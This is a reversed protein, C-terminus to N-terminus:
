IEAVNGQPQAAPVQGVVERYVPDQKEIDTFALGHKKKYQMIVRKLQPGVQGLKNEGIAENYYRVFEREHHDFMQEKFKNNRTLFDIERNDMPLQKSIKSYILAMALDPNEDMQEKDMSRMAMDIEDDSLKEGRRVKFIIFKIKTQASVNAKNKEYFQFLKTGNIGGLVQIFADEEMDDLLGSSFVAVTEKDNLKKNANLKAYLKSAQESMGSADEGRGYTEANEKKMEDVLDGPKEYKKLAQNPISIAKLVGGDTKIVVISRLQDKPKMYVLSNNYQIDKNYKKLAEISQKDLKKFDISLLENKDFLAAAVKRFSIAANKRKGYFERQKRIVDSLQEPSVNSGKTAKSFEKPYNNRLYEYISKIPVNLGIEAVVDAYIEDLIDKSFKDVRPMEQYVFKRISSILEHDMTFIDGIGTSELIGNFQVHHGLTYPMKGNVLVNIGGGRDFSPVEYKVQLNAGIEAWTAAGQGSDAIPAKEALDEPKPESPFLETPSLRKPELPKGGEWFLPQQAVIERSSITMTKM